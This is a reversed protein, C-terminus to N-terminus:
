RLTIPRHSQDQLRGFSRCVHVCGVVHHRVVLLKQQYHAQVTFFQPCVILWEIAKPLPWPKTSRPTPVREQLRLFTGTDPLDDLLIFLFWRPSPFGDTGMYQVPNGEPSMAPDDLDECSSAVSRDDEALSQSYPMSPWAHTTDDVHDNRVCHSASRACCGSLIPYGAELTWFTNAKATHIKVM